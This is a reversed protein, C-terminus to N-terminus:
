PPTPRPYQPNPPGQRFRPPPRNAPPGNGPPRSGPPRGVAGPKPIVTVRREYGEGVSETNVKPNTSLHMHVIRRERAPMPEMAVSRRTAVARDAMRDAQSRLLEYRRERYGEVDVAVNVRDEAKRSLIFNVIFQLSDLTEGRHGILLGADAGDINFTLTGPDKDKQGPLASSREPLGVAADVGMARLLSEITEKALDVTDVTKVTVQVRAQEAGLGLIGGRGKDLVVIEVDERSVGLQQIAKDIAEEVTKGTVELTQM